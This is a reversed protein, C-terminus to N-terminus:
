DHWHRAGVTQGRAQRRVLSRESRAAASRFTLRARRLRSAATGVPIGVMTAIEVTSMGELEFLVFVTVLDPDMRLLLRDMLELAAQRDTMADSRWGPDVRVDMDGELEYRDHKRHASQAIRVATGFLFARESGQRIQELHEAAVLFAQQAGDAAADPNM